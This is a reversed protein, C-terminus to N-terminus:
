QMTFLRRQKANVIDEWINCVAYTLRRSCKRRISYETPNERGSKLSYYKDWNKWKKTLSSMTVVCDGDGSIFTNEDMNEVMTLISQIMHPTPFSGLINTTGDFDVNKGYVFRISQIFHNKNCNNSFLQFLDNFAQNKAIAM